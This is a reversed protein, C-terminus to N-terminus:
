PRSERVPVVSAPGRGDMPLPLGSAIAAADLGAAQLGPHAAALACTAVTLAIVAALLRPTLVLPPLAESGHFCANLGTVIQRAAYSGLLSGLGAMTLAAWLYEALIHGPAAGLVKKLAIEARQELYVPRLANAVAVGSVLLGLAASALLLRRYLGQARAVADEGGLTLAGPFASAVRELEHTADTIQAGRLVDSIRMMYTSREQPDRTPPVLLTVSHLARPDGSLRRYTELAVDARYNAPSVADLPWRERIGVVTFSHERITLTDGIGLGRARALDYGLIVEDPGELARGAALRVPYPVEVGTSGDGSTLGYLLGSPPHGPWGEEDKELAIGGAELIAGQFGPLEPLRALLSDRLSGQYARVGLRAANGISTRQLALALSEELSGALLTLTVALAIAGVAVASRVLRGLEGAR